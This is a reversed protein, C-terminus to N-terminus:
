TQSQPGNSTELLQARHLSFFKSCLSQPKFSPHGVKGGKVSGPGEGGAAGLRFLVHDWKSSIKRKGRDCSTITLSFNVKKKHLVHKIMAFNRQLKPKTALATLM